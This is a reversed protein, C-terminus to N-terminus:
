QWFIDSVNDAFGQESSHIRSIKELQGATAAKEIEPFLEREEFRVHKELVDQIQKLSIEIQEKDSFLKSLLKHADIAQHILENENGLVPFFFEEEMEFHPALHNKYFWDAYVKIRETSVGKSFGAKIKWCLLLAYHHDHSLSKLAASRKIPKPVNM